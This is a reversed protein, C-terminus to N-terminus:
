LYRHLFICFVYCLKSSMGLLYRSPKYVHSIEVYECPVYNYQVAISIALVLFNIHPNHKDNKDQNYSWIYWAVFEDLCHHAFSM